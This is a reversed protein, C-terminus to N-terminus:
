PKPLSRIVHTRGLFRDIPEPDEINVSKGIRSWVASQGAIPGSLMLDDVYVTLLQKEAPFWFTSPHEPVAVGGCSKVAKTLHAEWHAGSEPHGYLALILPCVPGRM